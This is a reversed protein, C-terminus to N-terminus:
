VTKKRRIFLGFGILGLGMLGLSTPEPVTGLQGNGFSGQASFTYQADPYIAETQAFETLGASGITNNISINGLVYGNATSLNSSNLDFDFSASFLANSAISAPANSTSIYFMDTKTNMVVYKGLLPDPTSWISSFSGDNFEVLDVYGTYISDNAVADALSKSDNSASWHIVTAQSLGASLALIALLKQM